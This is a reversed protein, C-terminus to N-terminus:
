SMFDRKTLGYHVREDNLRTHWRELELRRKRAQAVCARIAVGKDGVSRWYAAKSLSFAIKGRTTMAEWQKM